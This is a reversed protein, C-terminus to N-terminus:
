GRGRAFARLLRSRSRANPAIAHFDHSVFNKVDNQGIAENAPTSRHGLYRRCERRNRQEGSVSRDSRTWERAHKAKLRHREEGRGRNNQGGGRREGRRGDLERILSRLVLVTKL